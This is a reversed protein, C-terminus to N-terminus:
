RLVPMANLELLGLLKRGGRLLRHLETARRLIMEWAWGCSKLLRTQGNNRKDGVHTRRVRPEREQARCSFDFPDPHQGARVVRRDPICDLSIKALLM